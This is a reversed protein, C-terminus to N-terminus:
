NSSAHRTNNNLLHEYPAIGVICEPYFLLFHSERVIKKCAYKMIFNCVTQGWIGYKQLYKEAKRNNGKSSIFAKAIKKQMKPVTRPPYQKDLRSFRKKPAICVPCAYNTRVLCILCAEPYDVIFSMVVPYCDRLRGDSGRM